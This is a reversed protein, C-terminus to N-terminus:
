IQISMHLRDHMADHLWQSQYLMASHLNVKVPTIIREFRCLSWDYQMM